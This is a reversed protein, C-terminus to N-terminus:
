NYVSLSGSFQSYLLDYIKYNSTKTHNLNKKNYKFSEREEPFSLLFLEELFVELASPDLDLLLLECPLNCLHKHIIFSLMIILSKEKEALDLELLALDDEAM